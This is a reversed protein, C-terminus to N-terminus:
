RISKVSVFNVPREAGKQGKCVGCTGGQVACHKCASCNKCANCPSTGYCKAASVSGAGPGLNVLSSIALCLILKFM